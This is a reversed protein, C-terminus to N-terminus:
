HYGLVPGSPQQIQGATDTGDRRGPCHHQFHDQAAQIKISCAFRKGVPKAGVQLLDVSVHLREEKVQFALV